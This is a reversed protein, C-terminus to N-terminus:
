KLICLNRDLQTESGDRNPNVMSSLFFGFGSVCLHMVARRPLQAPPCPCHWFVGSNGRHEAPLHQHREGCVQCPVAPPAPLPFLAGVFLQLLVSGQQSRVSPSPASQPPIFGHSGEKNRPAGGLLGSRNGLSFHTHVDRASGAGSSQTHPQKPCSPIRLARTGGSPQPISEVRGAEIQM